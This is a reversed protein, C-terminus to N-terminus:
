TLVRKGAFGYDLADQCGIQGCAVSKYCEQLKSKEKREQSVRAVSKYCGQLGRTVRKYGETVIKYCM